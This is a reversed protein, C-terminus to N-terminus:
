AKLGDLLSSPDLLLFLLPLPASRSDARVVWPYRRVVQVNPSVWADALELGRGGARLVGKRLQAGRIM